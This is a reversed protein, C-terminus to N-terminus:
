WNQTVFFNFKKTEEKCFSNEEKCGLSTTQSQSRRRFCSNVCHSIGSHLVLFFFLFLILFLFLFLSSTCNAFLFPTINLQLLPVSNRQPRPTEKEKKKEEGEGKEKKERERGREGREECKGGGSITTSM